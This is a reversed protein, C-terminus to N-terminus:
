GHLCERSSKLPIEMVALSDNGGGSSLQAALLFYLFPLLPLTKSPCLSALYPFGKASPNGLIVIRLVTNSLPILALFEDPLVSLNEQFRAKCANYGVGEKPTPDEVGPGPVSVPRCGTVFQAASGELNRSLRTGAQFFRSRRRQVVSKIKTIISVALLSNHTHPCM